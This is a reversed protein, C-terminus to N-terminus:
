SRGKRPISIDWGLAVIRRSPLGTKADGDGLDHFRRIASRPLKAGPFHYFVTEVFRGAGSLWAAM